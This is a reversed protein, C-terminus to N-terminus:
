IVHILFINLDIKILRKCLYENSSNSKKVPALFTILFNPEIIILKLHNHYLNTWKLTRSSIINFQKALCNEM